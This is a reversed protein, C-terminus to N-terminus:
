REREWIVAGNEPLPEGAVAPLREGSEPDYWGVVVRVARTLVESPLTHRDCVRDGARWLSTPFAGAMPPGDGTALLSGDAAYAHVFVTYDSSLPALAEWRLHVEGTTWMVSAGDLRIAGGFTPWPQLLVPLECRPQADPLRLRAITWGDGAEVGDVQVPLRQEGRQAIVVVDWAQRTWAGPPIPLRWHEEVRQGASWNAATLTGHAPVGHHALRVDDVGPVPNVLQQTFVLDDPLPASAAWTLHLDLYRCAGDESFPPEALAPTALWCLLRGWEVVEAEGDLLRLVAGFTPRGATEPAAPSIPPPVFLATPVTATVLLAWSAMGLAVFRSIGGLVSEVGAALLLAFATAAPFLLRGGPAPTIADWRAWAALVLMGWFAAGGLLVRERWGARRWGWALGVLGGVMVLAYPLYVWRPYFSCPVQGWYSLVLLAMERVMQSLTLAERLGVEALMPSLATPDGYLRLNRMVWPAILLATPFFVVACWEMWRRWSPRERLLFLLAVGGLALLALGSLKSLGALAALVGFLLFRGRRGDKRMVADYLVVLAWAALPAALNDNDVDAALLLFQPNFAVLSATLLAVGEGRGLRRGLAWAAVVTAAQMLTSLFRLAHLTREAGAWPFDTRPHLWTVKDYLTPTPGCAVESSPLPTPDNAETPLHLLRVWTAGVLYYLPPQSSEQRTRYGLSEAEGHVPLREEVALHRIVEAHELEDLNEYPPILVNWCLALALYVVLLLLLSLRGKM